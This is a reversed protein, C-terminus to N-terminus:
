INLLCDNHRFNDTDVKAGGIGAYGDHLAALCNNDGVCLAVAGGRGHHCKGLGALAHNALHGLALGDGVGVAGDGGDLALHAGIVPHADVPLGVRGLLDAGHDQLLELTVGLGIQAAGDGLGNDGHGGVKGVSLTLGGLVGTLDGTQLDQADDVLRGSRRESVAEVLDVM